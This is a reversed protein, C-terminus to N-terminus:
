APTASNHARSDAFVYPTSSVSAPRPWCHPPRMSPPRAARLARRRARATRRSRAPSRRRDARGASGAAPGNAPNRSVPVYDSRRPRSRRLRLIVDHRTGDGASPQRPRQEDSADATRDDAATRGGFSCYSSRSAASRGSPSGRRPDSSAWRRVHLEPIVDARLVLLRAAGPERVEELVHHELARPVDLGFRVGREDRRDASLGVGVGVSSSVTNQSVTGACYRGSASHSSASRIAVSRM